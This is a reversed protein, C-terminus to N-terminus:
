LATSTAPPLFAASTSSCFNPFLPFSSAARWSFTSARRVTYCVCGCVSKDRLTSFVCAYIPFGDTKPAFLTVGLFCAGSGRKHHPRACQLCGDCSESSKVM